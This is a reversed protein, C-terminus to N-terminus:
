QLVPDLADKFTDPTFPKLLVFLAGEDMAQKRIEASGQSTVVGIKVGLQQEKVAKLLEIGTMEPMAWDTLVLDPKNGKIAELAERGNTAETITHDGFGAQRMTRKVIMRMASSDDVILIKM